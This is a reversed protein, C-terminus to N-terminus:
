SPIRWATAAGGTQYAVAAPKSTDPVSVYVWGTSCRSITQWEGPLLPKPFHAVNSIDPSQYMGNDADGIVFSSWLIQVPQGQPCVTAKLRTFHEGKKIGIMEPTDYPGPTVTVRPEFDTVKLTYDGGDGSVSVEDGLENVSPSSSKSPSSESPSPSAESTSSSSGSSSSAADGSGSSCAALALPLALAALKKM